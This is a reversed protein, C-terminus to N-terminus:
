TRTRHIYSQMRLDPHNLVNVADFRIQVTKSESIQFTKGFNADLFWRGVTELPMKMNGRQGPLANVVQIAGPTGDSNQLAIAQLTCSTSLNFGSSDVRDTLACQPDKVMTFGRYYTGTDHNPGDWQAHGKMNLEWTPSVIVVGSNAIDNNQSGTAYFTGPARPITRPLGSTWNLIISSQWRELLRAVWGSSNGFFPKNPGIPLEFSGNFRLDHKM